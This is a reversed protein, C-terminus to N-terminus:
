EQLRARNAAAAAKAVPLDRVGTTAILETKGLIQRLRTPVFLRAFYGGSTRRFICDV